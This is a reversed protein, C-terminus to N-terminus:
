LGLLRTLSTILHFHDPDRAYLEARALPDSLYEAGVSIVETANTQYTLKRELGKAALEMDKLRADFLDSVGEPLSVIDEYATGVYTNVFKDPYAEMFDNDMYGSRILAPGTAPSRRLLWDQSRAILVEQSAEAAHAMEHIILKKAQPGLNFIDAPLNVTM